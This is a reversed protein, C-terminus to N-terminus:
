LFEFKLKNILDDLKAQLSDVEGKLELVYDVYRDKIANINEIDEVQVPKYPNYDVGDELKVEWLDYVNINFEKAIQMLVTAHPYSKNTEWQGIRDKTISLIDGMEKQSLGRIKRLHKLNNAFNM